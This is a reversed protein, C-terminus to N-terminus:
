SQDRHYFELPVIAPLIKNGIDAVAGTIAHILAFVRKINQAQKRLLNEVERLARDQSGFNGLKFFLHVRLKLLNELKAHVHQLLIHPLSDGVAEKLRTQASQL